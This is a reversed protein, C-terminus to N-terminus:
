LSNDLRYEIFEEINFPTEESLEVNFFKGYNKLATLLKFGEDHMKILQTKNSNRSISNYTFNNRKNQLGLLISKSAIKLCQEQTVNKSHKGNLNGMINKFTNWHINSINDKPLSEIDMKIYDKYKFRLRNKAYIKQKKTLCNSKDHFQLYTKKDGKVLIDATKRCIRLLNCRFNEDQFDKIFNKAKQIGSARLKKTGIQFERRWYNSIGFREESHHRASKNDEAKNYITVLYSGKFGFTYGTIRNDIVDQYAGHKITPNAKVKQAFKKSCPYLPDVIHIKKHNTLNEAIHLQYVTPQPVPLHRWEIINLFLVAFIEHIFILATEIQKIDSIINDHVFFKGDFQIQLNHHKGIGMKIGRTYKLDFEPMPKQYIAMINKYLKKYEINDPIKNLAGELAHKVFSLFKNTFWYPHKEIQQQSPFPYNKKYKDFKCYEWIDHNIRKESDFSYKLNKIKESPLAYNIYFGDIFYNEKSILKHYFENIPM